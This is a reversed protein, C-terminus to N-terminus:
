TKAFVLALIKRASHTNLIRALERMTAGTTHVDDIIIIDKGRVEENPNIAFSDKINEARERVTACETQSRTTRIKKILHDRVASQHLGANRAFARAIREAQNYGRKRLHTKSTPVPVIICSDSIFEPCARLFYEALIKGMVASAYEEHKYKLAHILTQAAPFSFLTVAGLIYGANKHCPSSLTFIRNGCQPCFLFGHAVFSSICADCAPFFNTSVPAHCIVCQPPIIMDILYSLFRHM